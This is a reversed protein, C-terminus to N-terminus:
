RAANGDSRDVLEWRNRGIKVCDVEATASPAFRYVRITTGDPQSLVDIDQRAAALDALVAALAPFSTPDVIAYRFARRQLWALVDIQRLSAALETGMDRCQLHSADLWYAYYTAVLMRDGPAAQAAVKQLPMCEAAAMLCTPDTGRAAAALASPLPLLPWCSAAIAAFVSSVVGFRLFAPGAQERLLAEVKIVILPVFLLLSALIYRPAIVSPRLAVWVLLAALGALALVGAKSRLGGFTSTRWLLLPLFCLLLFSLGGGQMPYRGFVLALPYTLVIQWTTQASFWVQNFLDDTGDAGLFPALPAGFLVANKLFQPLWGVLTAAAMTFGGALVIRLYGSSGHERQMVSARWFLLVLLSTGLALIYSFKSVTALGAFLGSLVFPSYRVERAVRLVLWYISALGFANSLLDIKGDFVYLHFTSSTLLVACGLVIAVIGGGSTRILGALLAASALAVPFMFLKAAGLDALIMLAAFHYEASLGVMSFKEYLGPMPFITGTAAMIKPYVLYFAAADGKPPTFWAAVAFGLAVVVLLAVVVAVWFPHRRLSGITAIMTAWAARRRVAGAIFAVFGPVLILTIHLQDLRALLGLGTLAAAYVAGGLLYASALNALRAATETAQFVCSPRFLALVIWGLGLCSLSYALCIAVSNLVTM